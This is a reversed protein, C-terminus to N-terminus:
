PFIEILYARGNIRANEKLMWLHHFTAAGQDSGFGDM